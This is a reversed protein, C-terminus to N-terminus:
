FIALEEEMEEAAPNGPEELDDETALMAMLVEGSM